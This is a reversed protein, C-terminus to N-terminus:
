NNSHIDAGNRYGCDESDVFRVAPTDGPWIGTPVINYCLIIASDRIGELHRRPICGAPPGLDRHSNSKAWARPPSAPKDRWSGTEMGSGLDSRFARILVLMGQKSGLGSGSGSGLGLGLGSGSGSGLM